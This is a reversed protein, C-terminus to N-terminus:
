LNGTFAQHLLSREFAGIAAQKRQYVQALRHTEAAIADCADAITKQQVAPPHPVRLQKLQRITFQQLAAGNKATRFYSQIALSNLAYFLFRSDTRKDCRLWAIQSNLNAHNYAEDVIATKGIEGRNTVLIDGTRLHGKRLQEHKQPTLFRMGDSSIRGNVLNTARIFPIGSEVLDEKRPYNSSHNGDGITCIEDLPKELWDAGRRDLIFQLNSEFLRCSNRLAIGVLFDSLPLPFGEASNIARLEV